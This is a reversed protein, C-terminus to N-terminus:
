RMNLSAAYARDLGHRLAWARSDHSHMQNAQQLTRSMDNRVHMPMKGHNALTSVANAYVKCCGAHHGSNYLPVGQAIAQEILQRPSVNSLKKMKKTQDTPLIVQDLVHITGNSCNIDSNIVNAKNITIRGDTIGM